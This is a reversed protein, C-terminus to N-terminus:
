LLAHFKDRTQRTSDATLLLTQDGDQERIIVSQAKALKLMEDQIHLVRRMWQEPTDMELSLSDALLDEPPQVVSAGPRLPDFLFARGTFALPRYGSAKLVSAERLSTTAFAIGKGLSPAETGRHKLETPMIASGARHGHLVTLWYLRADIAARMHVLPHAPHGAEFRERQLWAGLMEETRHAEEAGGPSADGLWWLKSRLRENGHSDLAVDDTYPAPDRFPIGLTALCAALATDAVPFHPLTLGRLNFEQGEQRLQGDVGALLRNTSQYITEETM